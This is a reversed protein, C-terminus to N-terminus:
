SFKVVEQKARTIVKGLRAPLVTGFYDNEAMWKKVDQETRLGKHPITLPHISGDEEKVLLTIDIGKKGKKKSEDKPKLVKDAVENSRATNDEVTPDTAFVDSESM